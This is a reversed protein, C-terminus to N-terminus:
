GETLIYQIPLKIKVSPEHVLQNAWGVAMRSAADRAALDLIRYGSSKLIQIEAIYGQRHLEIGLTVTGQYGQRRALRPYYFHNPMEQQLRQQVLARDTTPEAPTPEAHLTETKKIQRNQKQDPTKITESQRQQEKKQSDKDQQEPTPEPKHNVPEPETESPMKQRAVTKAESDDATRNHTASAAIRVSMGPASDAVPLIVPATFYALLPLHLALSLPLLLVLRQRSQPQWREVM